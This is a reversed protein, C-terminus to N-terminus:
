QDDEGRMKKIVARGCKTCLLRGRFSFGGKKPLPAACEDCLSCMTLYVSAKKKKTWSEMATCAYSVSVAVLSVCILLEIVTTM